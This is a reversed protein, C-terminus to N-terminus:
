HARTVGSGRGRQFQLIQRATAPKLRQFAGICNGIDAPSRRYRQGALAIISRTTEWRLGIAKALVLVSEARTDNVSREVAEAPINAMLALAAVIEEFRGAAAFEELKAANLLGAQSLSEVLVQAAAYKPTRTLVGAEIRAAVEDVTKEIAGRAHAKEAELRTRVVDSAAELLQRFLQPPLDPRCGVRETLEDSGQARAVLRGLTLESFRAGANAAVSMLVHQDGRDVLVDTVPEPITRRRSIALLHDQSKTRACEVLTEVDVRESHTLMHSAVDIADDCALRRVIRPPAMALPALRISLLARSSEEITAVLRMFVDDIVSIEDESYSESGVLYLDTLHRLMAARRLDNSQAITNDVEEIFALPPGM